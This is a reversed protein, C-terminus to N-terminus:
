SGRGPPRSPNTGASPDAPRTRGARLPCRPSRHCALSRRPRGAASLRECVRRRAIVVQLRIGILSALKTYDRCRGARMDCKPRLWAGRALCRRSFRSPSRRTRCAPRRRLLMPANPSNAFSPVGEEVGSAAVSAEDCFWARLTPTSRSGEAAAIAHSRAGLASNCLSSKKVQARRVDCRNSQAAPLGGNM